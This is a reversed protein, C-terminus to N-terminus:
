HVRDQVVDQSARTRVEEEIAAHVREGRARRDIIRRGTDVPGLELDIAGATNGSGDAAAYGGPTAPTERLRFISSRSSRYPNQPQGTGRPSSVKGSTPSPLRPGATNPPLGDEMLSPHRRLIFDMASPREDLETDELKHGIRSEFVKWREERRGEREVNRKMKDIKMEM